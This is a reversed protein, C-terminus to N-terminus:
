VRQFLLVLKCFRENGNIIRCYLAVFRHRHKDMPNIYLGNEPAHPAELTRENLPPHLYFPELNDNPITKSISTISNVDNLVNCNNIHDINPKPKDPKRKCNSCSSTISNGQFLFKNVSCYILILVLILSLLLLNILLSTPTSNVM